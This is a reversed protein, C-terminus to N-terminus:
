GIVNKKGALDSRYKDLSNSKTHFSDDLYLSISTGKGPESFISFEAKMKNARNQMNSLGNGMPTTQLNFGIGNDTVSIEFGQPTATLMLRVEGAKSYKFVNTLAEKFILTIERAYGFPLSLTNKSKNDTLFRIDSEGFLTEGFDKIHNFVHHLKENDPNMSWIFERTGNYLNKATDEIKKYLARHNDGIVPQLQLQSTFNIIRALQNGMEDHFDQAMEKRLMAQQESRIKEITVLRSINARIRFYVYSIVVL